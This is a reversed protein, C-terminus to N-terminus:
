VIPPCPDGVTTEVPEKQQEANKYAADGNAVWVLMLAGIFVLNLSALGVPMAWGRENLFSFLLPPFWTFVQTALVFLGM